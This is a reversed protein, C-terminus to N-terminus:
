QSIYGPATPICLPSFGSNLFASKRGRGEGGGNGEWGTGRLHADPCFPYRPNVFACSGLREAGAPIFGTGASLSEGTPSGQDGGSGTALVLLVTPHNTRDPDAQAWRPPEPSPRQNGPHLQPVFETGSPLFLERDPSPCPAPLQSCGPARSDDWSPNFLTPQGVRQPWGLLQFAFCLSGTPPLHPMPHLLPRQLLPPVPPGGSDGGRSLSSGLKRLLSTGLPLFRTLLHSLPIQPIGLCSPPETSLSPPPCPSGAVRPSLGVPLGTGGLQPPPTRTVPPRAPRSTSPRMRSVVGRTVRRQQGASSILVNSPFCRLRGGTKRWSRGDGGPTEPVGPPGPFGPIRGWAEGEM